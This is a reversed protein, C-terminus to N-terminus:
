HYSICCHPGEKQGIHAVQLRTTEERMINSKGALVTIPYGNGIAKSFMALDPYIGIKKHYGGLVDRFGSSCEDFILVINNKTCYNRIFKLFKLNPAENRKVEMIVSSFNKKNIIKKFEKINNFNFIFSKKKTDSYEKPKSM